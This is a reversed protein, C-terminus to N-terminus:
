AKHMEEPNAEVLVAAFGESVFDDCAASMTTNLEVLVDVKAEYEVEAADIDAQTATDSEVTTELTALAAAAVKLAADRKDGFDRARRCATRFKAFPDTKQKPSM